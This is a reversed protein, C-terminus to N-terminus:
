KVARKVMQKGVRKVMQKVVRKVLWGAKLWACTAMENSWQGHGTPHAGTNSWEDNKVPLQTQSSTTIQWSGQKVERPTQGAGKVVAQSVVQGTHGCSSPRAASTAHSRRSTVLM